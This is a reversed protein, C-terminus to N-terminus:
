AARKRRLVVVAGLALLLLPGTAPLPVVGIAAISVNDLAGGFFGADLSSFTLVQETASATFTYVYQAWNFPSPRSAGTTDFTFAAVPGGVDVGVTKIIPDGDVNGALFFTVEYITGIILDTVNQSIGGQGGGNLDISNTDADASEWYGNIWDVSDGQVTWGTIDTSGGAKTEFPAGAGGAFGGNVITAASAAGGISVAVALAILVQKM